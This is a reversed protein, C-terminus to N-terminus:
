NQDKSRGYVIKKGIRREELLNMKKLEAVKRSIYEQRYGLVKSLDKTSMWGDLLNLIKLHIDKLNEAEIEDTIIKDIKRNLLDLKKDVKGLLDIIEKSKNNSLGNVNIKEAMQRVVEMSNNGKMFGIQESEKVIDAM